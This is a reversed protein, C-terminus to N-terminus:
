IIVSIASFAECMNKVQRLNRAHALATKPLGSSMTTICMVMFTVLAMM